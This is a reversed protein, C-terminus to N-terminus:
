VGQGQSASQGGPKILRGATVEWTVTVHDGARFGGASRQVRATVTLGGGVRVTYKTSDGIFAMREIVGAFRNPAEVPGVVLAIDEPRVVILGRSGPQWSDKTQVVVELKEAVQVTCEGHGTALIDGALLNSEGIFDAVFENASRNYLEAPAGVQEARGRNMVVIRDSMVLAEEQDHTVYIV